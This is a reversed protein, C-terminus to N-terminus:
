PCEGCKANQHEASWVMGTLQQSQTQSRFSNIKSHRLQGSRFSDFASRSSFHVSVRLLSLVRCILFCDIDGYAFPLKLFCHKQKSVVKCDTGITHRLYPLLIYLSIFRDFIFVICSCLYVVFIYIDSHHLIESTM